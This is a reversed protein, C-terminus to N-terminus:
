ELFKGCKIFGLLEKGHESFDVATEEGSGSSDV